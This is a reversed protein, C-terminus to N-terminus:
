ELLATHNALHLRNRNMQIPFIYQRSMPQSFQPWKSRPKGLARFSGPRCNLYDCALQSWHGCATNGHLIHLEYTAAPANPTYNDAQNHRICQMPRGMNEGQGGAGAGFKKIQDEWRVKQRGGQCAQRRDPRTSKIVLPQWHCKLLCECMPTTRTADESGSATVPRRCLSDLGAYHAM